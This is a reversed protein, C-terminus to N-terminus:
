IMVVENNYNFGSPKQYIFITGNHKAREFFSLNVIGGTLEPPPTFIPEIQSIPKNTFHGEDEPHKRPLSAGFPDYLYYKPQFINREVDRHSMILGTSGTIINTVKDGQKIETENVAVVSRLYYSEEGSRGIVLRDPVHVPYKNLREFSSMTLPLQSFSIPNSFTKIQIRQIRRNVYFILVEKSYIISQQKPIITKNENIWITQTTSSRIDKPEMNGGMEFPPIQLTIMPISTVTYIPQNNFPMNNMGMGMDLGTTGMGMGMGLANMALNGSLDGGMGMGMGFPGAAFSAVSYIPRTYIITPRLSFVSLLKRLLAGDDQNYLLDANDYLNNRCQNLSKLFDSIPNAEYYNGNRLKLVTEKLGIQVRYRNRLDAIPSSVECVVDNPDTTIADFLLYDPETIIPKKEYRSKIISGFDSYLMMIEFIEFKPLFMCAILPHIYNSAIHRERKYEGTMAVLSTDEYMLSHMFVSKSLSQYTEHMSLIENLVGYESEKINLGQSEEQSLIKTAGVYGLAKSIRSRYSVLNQNLDIEMARQGTLLASLEKRFEDYEQDSWKNETKYRMMKELIEHLPRTGNIYKRYIKQALEKAQRKVQQLKKTRIRLIEDVIAENEPYKKYLEVVDTRGFSGKKVLRELETRIKEQDTGQGSKSGTGSRGEDMGELADRRGRESM